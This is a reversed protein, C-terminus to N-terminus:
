SLMAGFPFHWRTSTSARHRTKIYFLQSVLGKLSDSCSKTAAIIQRSTFRNIDTNTVNQM